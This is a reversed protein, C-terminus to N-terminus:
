PVSLGSGRKADSSAAACDAHVAFPLFFRHYSTYTYLGKPKCPLTPAVGEERVTTADVVVEGLSQVKMAYDARDNLDQELALLPADGLARRLMEYSM